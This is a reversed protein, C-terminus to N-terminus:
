MTMHCLPARGLLTVQARRVTIEQRGSMELPQVRLGCPAACGGRASGGRAWGILLDPGVSHVQLLSRGPCGALLGASAAM